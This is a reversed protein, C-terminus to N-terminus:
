ATAAGIESLLFDIRSTLARDMEATFDTGLSAALVDRVAALLSEYMHQEVGYSRHTATEFEMYSALEEEGSEMLLLLVQDMMRGLMHADMHDMLSRSDACREFYREFVRPTIDGAREAVQEMISIIVESNAANM